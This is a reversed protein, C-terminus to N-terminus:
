TLCADIEFRDDNGPSIYCVSNTDALRHNAIQVWRTISECMLRIFVANVKGGDAQLEVMESENTRYPYYGSNRITKELKTVEDESTIQVDNGFLECRHSRDTQEVIPVIMKGTMDGGLILIGANYAKAANIFKFFCRESGHIDSEFFVRTTM